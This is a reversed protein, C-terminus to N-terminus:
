LDLYNQISNSNQPMNNPTAPNAGGFAQMMQQIMQFPQIDDVDM